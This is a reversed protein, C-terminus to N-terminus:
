NVQLTDDFRGNGEEAQIILKELQTLERMPEAGSKKAEALDNKLPTAWERYARKLRPVDTYMVKITQCFSLVAEWAFTSKARPRKSPDNEWFLETRLKFMEEVILMKQVETVHVSPARTKKPPLGQEAVSAEKEVAALAQKQAAKLKSKATETKPPM